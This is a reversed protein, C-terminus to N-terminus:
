IRAINEEEVWGIVGNDLKIEAWAGLTSKVHVKTGEHLQFLDTGSADPASKVAISRSLIIASHHKLFQEKRTGAFTLAIVFLITAILTTYFSLKRRSKITSFLFYLFAGLAVLFFFFGIGGWQNSSARNILRNIWREIFFSPSTGVSGVIKSEAISLNYAADKFGPDLRLAREYNLISLGIEGMKYYSNGLNYYLEAAGGIRLIEEYFKAADSYHGNSYLENAQKVTANITDPSLLDSQGYTPLVVWLLGIFYLFNKM